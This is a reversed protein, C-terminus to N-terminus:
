QLVVVSGDRALLDIRVGQEVDGTAYMLSAGAEVDDYKLVKGAYWTEESAAYVQVVKGVLAVRDFDAGWRVAAGRPDRESSGVAADPYRELWSMDAADAADTPHENEDDSAYPPSVDDREDSESGDSGANSTRPAPRTAEASTARCKKCQTRRRGHECIPSGGCEKCTSRVRGHECIGSGGCEKCSYRQRGHECIGKGPCEKCFYGRDAKGHPCM